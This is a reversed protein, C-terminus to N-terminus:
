FEIKQGDSLQYSPEGKCVEINVGNPLAFLTGIAEPHWCRAVLRKEALVAAM